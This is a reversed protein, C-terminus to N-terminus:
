VSFDTSSGPDSVRDTPQSPNTIGRMRMLTSSSPFGKWQLDGCDSRCRGGNGAPHSNRFNPANASHKGPRWMVSQWVLSNMLKRWVSVGVIAAGLAPYLVGGGIADLLLCHLFVKLLASNM